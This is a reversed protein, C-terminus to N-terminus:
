EGTYINGRSFSSNMIAGADCRLEPVRLNKRKVSAISEQAAKMILPDVQVKYGPALELALQYELMRQYGPPFALVTALLALSTLPEEIYLVLSITADTGIPYVHVTGLPYTPNYYIATPITSTLPKVSLDEWKQQSLVEIPVEVDPDLSTLLVSARDISTPRARNINGGTGITYSAQSAVIAQTVRSITYLTRGELQLAELLGNLTM